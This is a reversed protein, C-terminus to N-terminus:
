GSLFHCYRWFKIARFRLKKGPGKGFMVHRAIALAGVDKLKVQALKAVQRATVAVYVCARLTPFDDGRFRDVSDKSPEYIGINVSHIEGSASRLHNGIESVKDPLEPFHRLDFRDDVAAVQRNKKFGAVFPEGVEEYSVAQFDDARHGAVLPVVDVGLTTISYEIGAYPGKM